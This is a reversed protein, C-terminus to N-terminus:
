GGNQSKLMLDAIAPMWPTPTNGEEIKINWAKISNDKRYTNVRLLYNGTPLSWGFTTGTSTASNSIIAYNGTMSISDTVWITCNNNEHTNDHVNTFSGNTKASLTYTKGKVLYIKSNQYILQNDTTGTQPQFPGSSDTLLNWQPPINIEKNDAFIKM